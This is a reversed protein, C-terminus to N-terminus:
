DLLGLATLEALTNAAATHHLFIGGFEEWLHRHKLTDDVLIVPFDPSPDVAPDDVIAGAAGRAEAEKVYANGDHNEGRLALYLDGPILTRSDKSIRRVTPPPSGPRLVGGCMDAVELLTLADM